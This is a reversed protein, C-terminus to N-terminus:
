RGDGGVYAPPPQFGGIEQALLRAFDITILDDYEAGAAKYAQVSGGASCFAIETM